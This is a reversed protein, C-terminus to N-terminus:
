KDFRQCLVFTLELNLGHFFIMEPTGCPEIKPGMKNLM